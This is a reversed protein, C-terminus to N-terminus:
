PAPTGPALARAIARPQFLLAINFAACAVTWLLFGFFISLFETAWDEYFAAGLWSITLIM